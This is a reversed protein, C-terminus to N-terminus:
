KLYYKHIQKLYLITELFENPEELLYKRLDEMLEPITKTIKPYVIKIEKKM